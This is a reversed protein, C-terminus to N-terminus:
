LQFSSRTVATVTSPLCTGGGDPNGAEFDSDYDQTAPRTTVHKERRTTVRFIALRSLHPATCPRIM